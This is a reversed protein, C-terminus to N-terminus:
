YTSRAMVVLWRVVQTQSQAVLGPLQVWYQLYASEMRGEACEVKLALLYGLVVAATLDYIRAFAEVDGSAAAAVQRGWQNGM